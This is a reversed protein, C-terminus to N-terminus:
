AYLDDEDYTILKRRELKCSTIAAEAPRVENFTKKTAKSWALQLDSIPLPAPSLSGNAGDTVGSPSSKKDIEVCADFRPSRSSEDETLINVDCNLNKRRLRKKRREVLDGSPCHDDSKSESSHRRSKLAPSKLYDKRPRVGGTRAEHGSLCKGLKSRRSSCSGRRNGDAAQDSPWKDFSNDNKDGDSLKWMDNDDEERKSSVGPKWAGLNDVKDDNCPKWTDGKTENCGGFKWTNFDDKRGVSSVPKYIDFADDEKSKDAVTGVCDPSYQESSRKASSWFDSDGNSSAEPPPWRERSSNNADSWPNNEFAVPWPLDRSEPAFGRRHGNGSLCGRKGGRSGRGREARVGGGRGSGGDGRGISKGRFHGSDGGQKQRHAFSVHVTIGNVMNGDMENLAIEAEETTSFTVFASKQHEEVFVRKILGYKSFVNRLSDASLDYGRIYLNPGKRQKPQGSIGFPSSSDGDFCSSQTWTSKYTDFGDNLDSTTKYNDFSSSSNYTSFGDNDDMQKVDLPKYTDFGDSAMYKSGSEKYTDFDELPAVKYADLDSGKYTDFADSLPKYTDFNDTSLAPEVAKTTGGDSDSSYPQYTDFGDDAGSLSVASNNSSIRRRRGVLSSPKFSDKKEDAKKFTVAGTLVKRKVEETAEEAQQIHRKATGREVKFNESTMTGSNKSVANIAKRIAKLKDLTEKLRNEDNSLTTPFVLGTDRM